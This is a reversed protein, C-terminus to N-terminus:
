FYRPSWSILPVISISNIISDQNSINVFFQRNKSANRRLRALRHDAIQLMISHWTMTKSRLVFTATRLTQNKKQDFTEFRTMNIKAPWIKKLQDFRKSSTLDKWITPVKYFEHNIWSKDHNMSFWSNLTKLSIAQNIISCSDCIWSKDPFNSIQNLLTEFLNPIIRSATM